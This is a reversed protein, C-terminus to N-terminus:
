IFQKCWSLMQKTKMITDKTGSGNKINNRVENLLYDAIISFARKKDIYFLIEIDSILETLNNHENSFNCKTGIIYESYSIKNLVNFDIYYTKIIYRYIIDEDSVKLKIYKYKVM